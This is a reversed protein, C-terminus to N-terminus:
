KYAPMVVHLLLLCVGLPGHFKFVPGYQEACRDHFDWGHRNFLDHINGVVPSQM